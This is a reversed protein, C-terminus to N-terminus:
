WGALRHLDKHAVHGSVGKVVQLRSGPVIHLHHGLVGVPHALWQDSLPGCTRALLGGGGVRRYQGETDSQSLASNSEEEGATYRLTVLTSVKPTSCSLNQM